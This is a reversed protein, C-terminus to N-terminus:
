DDHNHDHECCCEHGNDIKIAKNCRPCIVEANEDYFLDEDVFIEEDCNPCTIEMFDIDEEDNEDNDYNDNGNFIEEEVEELDENLADVYESLDEQDENIMVIAEAFDDLTDIIRLLLKGEKTSEEISLGEALGKLYAVNELLHNM